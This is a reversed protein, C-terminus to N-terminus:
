VVLIGRSSGWTLFFSHFHLRSLHFFFSRFKPRDPPPLTRRLSSLRPLPLPRVWSFKSYVGSRYVVGCWVVGCWVVGCWVVVCCLVVCCLVVCCLVVYCLLSVGCLVVCRPIGCLTTKPLPPGECPPGHGLFCSMLLLNGSGLNKPTLSPECLNSCLVTHDFFPGLPPRPWFHHPGFTTRVM